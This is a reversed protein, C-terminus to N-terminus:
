CSADGAQKTRAAEYILQLSREGVPDWSFQEATKCAVKVMARRLGPNDPLMLMQRV